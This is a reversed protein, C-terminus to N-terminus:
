QNIDRLSGRSFNRCWIADNSRRMSYFFWNRTGANAFHLHLLDHYTLFQKLEKIRQNVDFCSQELGLRGTSAVDFYTGVEDISKKDM